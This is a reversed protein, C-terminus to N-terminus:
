IKVRFVHSGLLVVDNVFSQIRVYGFLLEEKCDAHYLLEPFSVSSVQARVRRTM